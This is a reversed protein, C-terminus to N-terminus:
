LTIWIPGKSIVAQHIDSKFSFYVTRLKGFFASLSQPHLNQNKNPIQKRKHAFHAYVNQELITKLPRQQVILKRFTETVNPMEMDSIHFEPSILPNTLKASMRQLAEEWLTWIGINSISLRKFQILHVEYVILTIIM